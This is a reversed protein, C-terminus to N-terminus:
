INVVLMSGKPVRYGGVICDESSERPVLLPAVPYMRLTENIVGQLYPLHGLDSDNIMREFGTITDIEKQATKLCAQNNLLASLTWEM